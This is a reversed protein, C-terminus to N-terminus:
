VINKFKALKKDVEKAGPRMKKPFQFWQCLGTLALNGSYSESIGAFLAM